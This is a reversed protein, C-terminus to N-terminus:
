TKDRLIRRLASEALDSGFSLASGTVAGAFCIGSIFLAGGPSFTRVREGRLLNIYEIKAAAYFCTLTATTGLIFVKRRHVGKAASFSYGVGILAAAIAIRRDM